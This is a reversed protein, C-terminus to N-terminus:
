GDEAQEPPRTSNGNCDLGEGPRYIGRVTDEFTSGDDYTILRPTIDIRCQRDSSRLLPQAEVELHKTSYFSVTISTDTYTNWVLIGYPTNNRVRLDPAPWSITAERGRPYRSIYISHSQYEVFEIGAFFSANFFTTAYQSIGGGVQDEFNGQAIAGAPFFGKDRTRMGVHGNLSFDEGPRIIQGQTLDAFRQINRVRNECCAHDTTFTSVLEVIGLSELERVGEDSGVVEPDVTIPREVPVEEEAETEGSSDGGEAEDGADPLPALLGERIAAISETTCCVVTEAAPVIIPVEDVVNFRAQQDEAGLSTFLPKLDDLAQETDVLWSPQDSDGDLRIWPRVTAQDVLATQDLVQFRVPNATAANVETAVAEVQEDTFRPQADIPETTIGPPEDGDLVIPLQEIIEDTEIRVGASGPVVEFADGRLDLEPDVPQPLEDTNISEVTAETAQEDILYRVEIEEETFFHAAWRFPRTAIFGGKRADLAETLLTAEDIRAGLAAADREVTTDGITVAVPTEALDADLDAALSRLADEDFGGIDTQGYVTGRAVRDGSRASDVLWAALFLVILVLPILLLRRWRGGGGATLVEVPESGPPSEPVAIADVAINDNGGAAEDTTTADGQTATEDQTASQDDHTETPAAVTAALPAAVVTEGLPEDAPVPDADPLSPRALVTTADLPKDQSEHTSEPVQLPLTADQTDVRVPDSPPQPPVAQNSATETEDTSATETEDASATKTVPLGTPPKGTLELVLTTDTPTSEDGPKDDPMSPPPLSALFDAADIPGKEPLEPQLAREDDRGGPRGEGTEGPNDPDPATGEETDKAETVPSCDAVPNPGPSRLHRRPKRYGGVQSM